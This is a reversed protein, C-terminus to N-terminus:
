TPFLPSLSVLHRIEVDDEQPITYANTVNSTPETTTTPTEYGEIRTEPPHDLPRLAGRKIMAV